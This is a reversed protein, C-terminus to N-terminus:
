RALVLVHLTGSFNEFDTRKVNGMAGSRQYDWAMSGRIGLTFVKNAHGLAKRVSPAMFTITDNPRKTTTIKVEPTTNGPGYAHWEYTEDKNQWTVEGTGAGADVTFRFSYPSREHITTNATPQKNMVFDRNKTMAMAQIVVMDGRVQMPPDKPKLWAGGIRFWVDTTQNELQMMPAGVGASSSGSSGSGSAAGGGAGAIGAGFAAVRGQLSRLHDRFWGTNASFTRANNTLIASHNSIRDVDTTLGTYTKRLDGCQVVASQAQKLEDRESQSLGGPNRSGLRAVVAKAESETRDLQARYKPMSKRLTSLSSQFKNLNKEQLADALQNNITAQIELGMTNLRSMGDIINTPPMQQARAQGLGWVVCALLFM